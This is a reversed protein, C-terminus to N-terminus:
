QRLINPPTSINHQTTRVGHEDQTYKLALANRSQRPGGDESPCATLTRGLGISSAILPALEFSPRSSASGKRNDSIIM